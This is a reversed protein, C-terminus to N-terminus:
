ANATALAQTVKTNFLAWWDDADKDTGYSAPLSLSEKDWANWINWGDGSPQNVNLADQTSVASVVSSYIAGVATKADDHLESLDFKPKDENSSTSDEIKITDIFSNNFTPSAGNVAIKGGNAYHEDALESHTYAKLFAEMATKKITRVSQNTADLSQANLNISWGGKFHRMPNGMFTPLEAAKIKSLDDKLAADSIEQGDVKVYKAITRSIMENIVWPGDITHTISGDAIGQRIVADRSQNLAVNRYPFAGSVEYDHLAKQYNYVSKGAAEFDSNTLIPATWKGSSDTVYLDKVADIDYAGDKVLASNLITSGHWLNNFQAVFTTQGAGVGTQLPIVGNTAPDLSDLKNDTNFIQIVSETNIPYGYANGGFVVSSVKEAAGFHNELETKNVAALRNANKNIAIRDNPMTVIDAAHKGNNALENDLYDSAKGNALEIFKYTFSTDGDRYVYDDGQKSVKDDDTALQELAAEYVPRFNTELAIEIATEHNTRSFTTGSSGCAITSALPAAVAAGTALTMLLKKM